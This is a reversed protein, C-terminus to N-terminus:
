HDEGDDSAPPTHLVDSDDDVDFNNVNDVLKDFPLM